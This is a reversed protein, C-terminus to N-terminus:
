KSKALSYRFEFKRRVKKSISSLSDMVRIDDENRSILEMLRANQTAVKEALLRNEVIVAQYSTVCTDCLGFSATDQQVEERIDQIQQIKAKTFIISDQESVLPKNTATAETCSYLQFGALVLLSLILLKFTGKM